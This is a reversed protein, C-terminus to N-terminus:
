WGIMAKVYGRKDKESAPLCEAFENWWAKTSTSMEPHQGRIQAVLYSVKDATLQKVFYLALRDQDRLIMGVRLEDFILRENEGM